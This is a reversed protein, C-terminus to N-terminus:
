NVTLQFYLPVLLNGTQGYVLFKYTPPPPTKTTTGNSGGCASILGLGALSVGVLLMTLWRRRKWGMCGVLAALAAGAPLLPYSKESRIGSSAVPVTLTMQTTVTGTGSPTVTSPSFTCPAIIPEDWCTFGITQNYGNVPTVTITATVSGGTTVSLTAPMTLTFTQVPLTVSASAVASNLYNPAVAIAQFPVVVTSGSTTVASYPGVTIPGTYVSSGPSPTGAQDIYYITANPNADSMTVTSIGPNSTAAVSITPTPATAPAAPAPSAKWFDNLYLNSNQETPSPANWVLAGGFLWLNGGSDTWSSATDRGGPINGAAAVGLSGYVGPQGSYWGTGAGTANDGGAPPVTTDGGMWVWQSLSLNFEWVDNLDGERGPTEYSTDLESDWGQGGFLWLNGSKDTWNVANSRSGPVNLAAPTALTGYVGGQSCPQDTAAPCVTLSTGSMWAWENKSPIYEWLDNFESANGITGPNVGGFLWLDGNADTWSSAGERAGPVNGLSPTGLTGYIGPQGDSNSGGVWTWEQTSPQYEWLDNSVGYEVYPPAGFIGTGGFLWFNGSADTWSAAGSRSGPVNGAAPVGLNGYVGPAFPSNSGGMWTWEASIPDFQWLDNLYDQGPGPDPNDEGAFLWFKGNKDVWASAGDRPPPINGSAGTGLTGYVGPQGASSSGGVWTWEQTSPQYEWLDNLEGAGFSGGTQKGDDFGWGGFLWFNGNADTWTAAGTRSGPLNGTAATGLTGYVGAYGCVPYVTPSPALCKARIPSPLTDSGGM